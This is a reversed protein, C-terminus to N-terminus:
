FKVDNVESHMMLAMKELYFSNDFIISVQEQNTSIVKYISLCVIRRVFTDFHNLVTFLFDLAALM